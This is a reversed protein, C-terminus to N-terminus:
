SILGELMKVGDSSGLLEQMAREPHPMLGFVNRKENCIGAINLASGNPNDVNGNEDCYSLIIQNNSQLKELLKEDGYYNGEGHAIPINLKDNKNLKSLFKNSNDEVKLYQHKSIFHVSNNRKMAGELLSAELLIQFGNCIGLTLGGNNAFSIVAKMIPSFKAISGSRLYDGYSFGGPIVVVDTNSPLSNEQHWVFEADCGIEEFAWKTDRDCNTGPFVVVAIKKM